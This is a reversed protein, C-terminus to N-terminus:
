ILKNEEALETPSSVEEGFTEFDDVYDDDEEEEELPYGTEKRKFTNAGMQEYDNNAEM